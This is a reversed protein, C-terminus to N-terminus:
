MSTRRVKTGESRKVECITTQVSYWPMHLLCVRVREPNGSYSTFDVAGKNADHGTTRADNGGLWAADHLVTSHM